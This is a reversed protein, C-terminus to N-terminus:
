LVWVSFKKNKIKGRNLKEHAEDILKSEIAVYSQREYIDIKGISSGKLGADGTLAGLIDGARVKDKKGGEIVLTIYQPKMEFGNVRKLDLADEFLRTEDKYEEINEIEYSSFLTFALGDKGARGTRGIRHTYTETQHPLDYNVVMSLEKIDLGRAAVDTAVLIPCSKNSFQVLVDNREYQELEGHIALADIKQKQLNEALEKAQIKTNTFVIVNQPKFNSFINILIELKKADSSEYFREIINNRKETSVTKVSVAEHQLTKSVQMIEDTYTASFLLTQKRKKCFLLVEDIEEKFGMDLMRDAEDLVLIELDELSLTEKKLHKLIRGPTGVIIHAGHELSGLQPGFASGGCLTLVKVNHTARALLRLEKAVQDALERTPCLVLSQVRFKKVKLKSLLGIGFAATKGSGTKAEAIVDKGDLIFPLSQEQVATMEKYGIEGLNHLMEKSLPLSSFKM